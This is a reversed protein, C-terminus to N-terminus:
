LRKLPYTENFWPDLMGHTFVFYPVSSKALARWAGFCNYQWIGNVIVADFRSANEKLWPVLRPSYMYAGKGPGLPVVTLPFEKLWPSAPDDLCAVEVENGQSVVVSEIQKLGEVPGGAAPNVSAIV